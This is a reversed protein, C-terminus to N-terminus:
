PGRGEGCTPQAHRRSSVVPPVTGIPWTASSTPQLWLCRMTWNRRCAPQPGLGRGPQDAEVPHPPVDVLAARQVPSLDCGVGSVGVLGMQDAIEALEGPDGGGAVLREREAV